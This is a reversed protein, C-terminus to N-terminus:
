FFGSGHGTLGCKRGQDIVHAGFALQGVRRVASGACAAARAKIQGAPFAMMSVRASREFAASTAM